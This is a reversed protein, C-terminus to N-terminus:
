ERRLEQMTRLMLAKVRTKAPHAAGPTHELARRFAAAAAEFSLLELELEGLNAWVEVDDLGLAVARKYHAVADTVEGRRQALAGLAAHFRPNQSDRAVACEFAVAALELSGQALLQTGLAAFAGASAESGSFWGSAHTPLRRTGETM